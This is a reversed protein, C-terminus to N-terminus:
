IVRTVGPDEHASIAFYFNMNLQQKQLFNWFLILILMM